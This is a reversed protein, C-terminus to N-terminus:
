KAALNARSGTASINLVFRTNKQSDVKCHYPNINGIANNMFHYGSVGIGFVDIGCSAVHMMRLATQLCHMLYSIRRKSLCRQQRMDHVVPSRCLWIM